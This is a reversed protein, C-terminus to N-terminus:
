IFFLQEQSRAMVIASPSACTAPTVISELSFVNSGQFADDCGCPRSSVGICVGFGFSASHMHGVAIEPSVPFSPLLNADPIQTPTVILEGILLLTDDLYAVVNFMLPAPVVTAICRDQPGFYRYDITSDIARAGADPSM